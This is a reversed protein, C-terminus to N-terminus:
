LRPKAALVIPTTEVLELSKVMDKTTSKYKKFHATQLHAQYAAADAYIEFVTIHTPNNKEAVAYLTLVGPEVRVATEAHEKLAAMYNQLQASDIVLKAIRVVNNKDQAAASHPSFISLMFVILVSLLGSGFAPIWATRTHKGTPESIENIAEM